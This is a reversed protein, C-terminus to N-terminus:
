GRGAAVVGAANFGLRLRAGSTASGRRSLAPEPHAHVTVTLIAPSPPPAVEDRHKCGATGSLLAAWALTSALAALIARRPSGARRDRVRAIGRARPLDVRPSASLLSVDRVVAGSM